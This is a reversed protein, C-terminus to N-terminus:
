EALAAFFMPKGKEKRHQGMAHMEEVSLPKSICFYTGDKEEYTDIMPEIHECMKSHRIYYRHVAATNDVRCETEAPPIALTRVDRIDLVDQVVSEGTPMKGAGQGYFSLTGVNDGVLTILNNNTKVNAELSTSPFAVPEVYATIVDGEKRSNMMLKCVLGKEKLYAV